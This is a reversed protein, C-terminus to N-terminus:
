GVDLTLPRGLAERRRWASVRGAVDTFRVAPTYAGAPYAHVATVTGEWTGPVDEAADVTGDGEFDWEARTVVNGDPGDPHRYGATLTVAEGPAADPVGAGCVGYLVACPSWPEMVAEVDVARVDLDVPRGFVDYRNWGSTRWDDDVVRVQPRFTGEVLYRHRVTTRGAGVLDDVATTSDTTGDGDFDWEAFAVRGGTHMDPDLFWASFTFETMPGGDRGPWPACGPGAPPCPDWGLMVALPRAEGTTLSAGGLTAWDGYDGFEDVVVVAPVVEVNDHYTWTATGEATAADTNGDGDFDWEYHDLVTTFLASGLAAARFTFETGPRGDPSRWFPTWPLMVAAPPVLPVDLTLREVVDAPFTSSTHPPYFSMRLGGAVDERGAFPRQFFAPAGYPMELTLGHASGGYDRTFSWRCTWWERALYLPGFARALHCGGEITVSGNGPDMEDLRGEDRFSVETSWVDEGRVTAVYDAGDSGTFRYSLGGRAGAATVDMAAAVEGTPFMGFTTVGRGIVSAREHAAAPDVADQTVATRVSVTLTLFWQSLADAIRCDLPGVVSWREQAPACDQGVQRRRQGADLVLGAVVFGPGSTRGRDSEIYALASAYAENLHGLVDELMSPAPGNLTEILGAVRSQTPGVDRDIRAQAGTDLADVAADLPDTVWNVFEGEATDRLRTLKAKFSERGRPDDPDDPNGLLLRELRSVIAAPTRVDGVGSQRRLEDFVGDYPGFSRPVFTMVTCLASNTTAVELRAVAAKVVPVILHMAVGRGTTIVSVVNATNWMLGPGPVSKWLATKLYKNLGKTWEYALNSRLFADVGLMWKDVLESVDNVGVYRSGVGYYITDLRGITEAVPLDKPLAAVDAAVMQYYRGLDTLLRDLSKAYYDAALDVWWDGWPAAALLTHHLYDRFAGQALLVRRRLGPISYGTPDVTTSEESYDCRRPPRQPQERIRLPVDRGLARYPASWESQAGLGDVARVRPRFDGPTEFTVVHQTPVWPPHWTGSLPLWGGGEPPAVQWSDDVADVEGDGDLDWEMRGIQGGTGGAFADPDRVRAKLGVDTGAPFGEKPSGDLCFGYVNWCPEWQTVEVEPPRNGVDLAADRSGFRVGVWEGWGHDSGSGDPNEPDNDAFRVRPGYAGEPYTHDIEVDGASEPELATEADPTGDGEFDWQVAVVRGGATEDPDWFRARLTVPTDPTVDPAGEVLCGGLSAAWAPVGQLLQEGLDLRAHACPSWWAMEGRPRVTEVRLPPVRGFLDFADWPSAEAGALARVRPVVAGTGPYTWTAEGWGTTADVVGDGDFDWEYADPVGGGLPEAWFRFEQGPRGGPLGLFALGAPPAGTAGWPGMRVEPPRAAVVLRRPSGLDDFADWGSRHGGRDVARVRPAYVGEEGYASVVEPGNVSRDVEGDGDLDWEFYAVDAGDPGSAAARFRIDEGPAADGGAGLAGRNPSWASMRARFPGPRLSTTWRPERDSARLTGLAAWAGRTGHRDEARVRPRYTGPAGYRFTAEAWGGDVSETVPDRAEVAGDGDFDWEVYSVEELAPLSADLDVFAARFTFSTAATGDPGVPLCLGAFGACPRFGEGLALPPSSVVAVPAPVGGVSLPVWGSTGDADSVRLRPLFVGPRGLVFSEEVAGHGTTDFDESERDATGDGDFDWEFRVARGGGVPDADAWSARFAVETEPGGIPLGRACGEKGRVCPSWSEFRVSPPQDAVVLPVPLGGPGPGAWPSVQGDVDLARARPLFVGVREYTWTTRVVGDGDDDAVPDAFDTEGDGDLDWEVSVVRSGAEGPTGLAGPVHADPDRFRLAFRFTTSPSGAPLGLPTCAGALVACPEWWDMTVAPPRVEARVQGPTGNGDGDFGAWPSTEIPDGPLRKGTVRVRPTVAGLVAPVYELTGEQTFYEGLGDGDLDWSFYAEALPVSPAAALVFVTDPRGVPGGGEVTDLADRWSPTALSVTLPEVVPPPPGVEAVLGLMRAVAVNQPTTRGTTFWHLASSVGERLVRAVTQEMAPRVKAVNRRVDAFFANKAATPVVQLWLNVPVLLRLLPHRVRDWVPATSDEWLDPPAAHIVVGGLDGGGKVDAPVDLELLVECDGCRRVVLGVQGRGAGSPSFDRFVWDCYAARLDAVGGPVLPLLPVRDDRKGPMRPASYVGCPGHASVERSGQEAGNFGVQYWERQLVTWRRTAGAASFTAVGQDVVPGLVPAPRPGGPDGGGPDGGAAAQVGLSEVGGGGGGDGGGGPGAEPVTVSPSHGFVAAVSARQLGLSEPVDVEGWARVVFTPTPRVYVPAAFTASAGATDVLTLTAQYVGPRAYTHSLAEAPPASHDTGDGFDWWYELVPAGRGCSLAADFSVEGEAESATFLAVPGPEPGPPMSRAFVDPSGNSDPGVVTQIAASTFAAEQGDDSVGAPHPAQYQFTGDSECAPGDVRRTTGAVRDRLYVARGPPGRDEGFSGASSSFQVYRGDGGGVFRPSPTGNFSRAFEWMDSGQPGQEGSEGVSVREAAGGALPVAYVDRTGNTDGPDLDYSTTFVAESGTLVPTGGFGGGPLRSTLRRAPGAGTHVFLANKDDNWYSVEGPVLNTAQSGWVVTAGDCSLAANRHAVEWTGSFGGYPTRNNDSVWHFTNADRDYVYIDPWSLYNGNYNQDEAGQRPMPRRDYVTEALIKTGDCSVRPTYGTSYPYMWLPVDVPAAPPVYPEVEVAGPWDGGYRGDGDADLTLLLMGYRDPTVDLNTADSWVVARSSDATVYRVEVLGNPAAGDTTHLVRRVYTQGPEDYVGDGDADRDRVFVDSNTGAVLGTEGPFTGRGPTWMLVHRGDGLLVGAFASLSPLAVETDSGVSVAAYEAGGDGPGALFVEGAWWSYSTFAVRGHGDLAPGGAFEGPDYGHGVAGLPAVLEPTGGSAPAVFVDDVGDDDGAVLDGAASSFAVRTGDASITAGGTPGPDPAGNSGAVRTLAGSDVDKVFVDGAAGNADGTVLNAAESTFAVRRGSADLAGGAAVMSWGDGQAGDAAVSVRRTETAGPTSEDFTGDADADRDHWFVDTAGNTDSEDVGPTAASDVVLNTASSTFVVFRGDGSLSPDTSDGDAAGSGTPVSVLATTAAERDYVFVSRGGGGPAHAGGLLDGADSTFAVHRGDGSLAPEDSSGLAPGGDPDRTVREIEWTDLNRVYVQDGTLGPTLSGPVMDVADSVFAVLRGDDSADPSWGGASRGDMGSSVRLTSAAGEVWPAGPDRWAGWPDDFRDDGDVDRDRVFVDLGYKDGAVFPASSQFAVYRGDASLRPSSSFRYMGGWRDRGLSQRTATGPGEIREVATAARGLLLIAVVLAPLVLALFRTAGRRFCRRVPLLSPRGQGPARTRRLTTGGRVSVGARGPRGGPAQGGAPLVGRRSNRRPVDKVRGM